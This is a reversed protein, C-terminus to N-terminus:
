AATTALMLGVIATAGSVVVSNLVQRAFLWRGDADVTGLVARFHELSVSTPIPSLGVSFSQVPTVAMKVVWLVPYLTAVTFLVLALHVLIQVALSPRRM